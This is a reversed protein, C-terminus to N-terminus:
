NIQTSCFNDSHSDIRIVVLFKDFGDTVCRISENVSAM